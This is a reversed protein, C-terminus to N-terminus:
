LPEWFFPVNTADANSNYWCTNDSRRITQNKVIIEFNWLIYPLFSFNVRVSFINRWILKNCQTWFVGFDWAELTWSLVGCKRFPQWISMCLYWLFNLETSPFFSLKWLFNSCPEGTGKWRAHLMSNFMCLFLFAPM